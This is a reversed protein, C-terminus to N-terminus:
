HRWRLELIVVAITVKVACCDCRRPHRLHLLPRRVGSSTTARRNLDDQGVGDCLHAGVLESGNSSAQRAAEPGGSGCSWLCCCGWGRSPAALRGAGSRLCGDVQLADDVQVLHLRSRVCDHVVSHPYPPFVAALVFFGESGVPCYTM